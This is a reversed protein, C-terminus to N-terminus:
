ARCSLSKGRDPDRRGVPESRHELRAKFFMVCDCSVESGAAQQLCSSATCSQEDRYRGQRFTRADSLQEGSCASIEIGFTVNYWPSAAGTLCFGTGNYRQLIGRVVANSAARNSSNIAGSIWVPYAEESGVPPVCAAEESGSVCMDFLTCLDQNEQACLASGHYCGSATTAGPFLCAPQGDVYLYVGARAACQTENPFTSACQPEAPKLATCQAGACAECM